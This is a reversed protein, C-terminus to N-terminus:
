RLGAEDMFVHIGIPAPPSVFFARIERWNEAQQRETQERLRDVTALNITGAAVRRGILRLLRRERRRLARYRAKVAPPLQKWCKGCVIEAGPEPYKEQPATRRCGPRICPIRDADSM